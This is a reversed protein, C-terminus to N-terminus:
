GLPNGYMSFVKAGKGKHEFGSLREFGQVTAPAVPVVSKATYVPASAVSGSVLNPMYENVAQVATTVLSGGAFGVAAEKGAIKNAGFTGGVLIVAKTVYGMIGRSAGDIVKNLLGPVLATALGGALAGLLPKVSSADVGMPNHHYKRSRSKKHKHAKHAGLSHFTFPNAHTKKSHHKKVKKVERFPNAGIFMLEEGMPNRKFPNIRLGPKAKKAMLSTQWHGGMTYVRPRHLSGEKGLMSVSARKHHIVKSKVAKKPAHKPPNILFQETAM